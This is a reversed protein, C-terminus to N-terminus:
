RPMIPISLSNTLEEPPLFSGEYGHIYLKNEAGAIETDGFRSSPSLASGPVFSFTPCLIQIGPISRKSTTERTAYGRYFRLHAWHIIKGTWWDPQAGVSSSAPRVTLCTANADMSMM